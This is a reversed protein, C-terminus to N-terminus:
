GTIRRIIDTLEKWQEVLEKFVKRGLSSLQYYRRPRSEDVQWQSELVGQDELRRLLPYLSDQSIELGADSLDKQLSYGYRSESLRAMVAITLNGKRIEQLIRELIQQEENNM